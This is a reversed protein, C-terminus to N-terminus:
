NDYLIIYMLVLINILSPLFPFVKYIKAFSFFYFFFMLSLKTFFYILAHEQLNHIKLSGFQLFCFVTATNILFLITACFVTNFFLFLFLYFCMKMTSTYDLETREPFFCLIRHKTWAISFPPSLTYATKIPM